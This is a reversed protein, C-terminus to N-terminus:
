ENKIEISLRYNVNLKDFLDNCQELLGPIEEFDTIGYLKKLTNMYLEIKDKMEKPYIANLAEELFDFDRFSIYDPLIDNDMPILLMNVYDGIYDIATGISDLLYYKIEKGIENAEVLYYKRNM